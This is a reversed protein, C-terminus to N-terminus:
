SVETEAAPRTEFWPKASNDSAHVNKKSDPRWSM